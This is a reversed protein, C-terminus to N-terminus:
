SGSESRETADSHSGLYTFNVSRVEADASGENLASAIVAKTDLSM